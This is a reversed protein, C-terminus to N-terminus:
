HPSQASLPYHNSTQPSASTRRWISHFVCTRACLSGLTLCSIPWGRVSNAGIVLADSRLRARVCRPTCSHFHFPHPASPVPQVPHSAAAALPIPRSPVLDPTLPSVTPLRGDGNIRESGRRIAAGSHLVRCCDSECMMWELSEHMQRLM